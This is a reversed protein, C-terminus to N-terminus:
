SKGSLVIKRYSKKEKEFIKALEAFTKGTEPDKEGPSIEALPIMIFPLKQYGAQPLIDLDIPRAAYKNQPDRKRGLAAEIKKLAQDLSKRDLATKIEAALNWFLDGGVPGVPQTEYISSVKKLTFTQDLLKLCQPVALKSNLNSGISLYYSSM